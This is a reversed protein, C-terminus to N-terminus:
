DNKNGFGNNVRNLNNVREVDEISSNRADRYGQPREMMDSYQQPKKLVDSYSQPRKFVDSYSQPRKIVDGYSKPKYGMSYEGDTGNAAATRERAENIKNTEINEPHYNSMKVEHPQFPNMM